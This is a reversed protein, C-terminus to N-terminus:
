VFRPPCRRTGTLHLIYSTLHLIYGDYSAPHADVRVGPLYTLLYTPLYADVRVGLMTEVDIISHGAAQFASRAFDNVWYVYQHSFYM